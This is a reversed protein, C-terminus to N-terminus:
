LKRLTLNRLQVVSLNDFMAFYPQYNNSIANKRMHQNMWKAVLVAAM